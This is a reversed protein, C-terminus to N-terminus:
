VGGRPGRTELGADNEPCCAGAEIAASAREGELARSM